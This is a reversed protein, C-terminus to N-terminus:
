EGMTVLNNVEVTDDSNVVIQLICSSCFYKNTTKTVFVPIPSSDMGDYKANVCYVMKGTNFASEVAKYIGDIKINESLIDTKQFDVNIYGNM